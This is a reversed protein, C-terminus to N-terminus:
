RRDTYYEAITTLIRGIPKQRADKALCYYAAGYHTRASVLGNQALVSLNRAVTQYPMKLATAIDDIRMEGRARLLELMRVRKANAVSKFIGILSDM